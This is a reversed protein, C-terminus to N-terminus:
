PLPLRKDWNLKAAQYLQRFNLGVPKLLSDSDLSSNYSINEIILRLANENESLKEITRVLYISQKYAASAKLNEYSIFSQKLDGYSLFQSPSVSFMFNQCPQNHCSVRQAIGEDFWSPLRRQDTMQYFLAHVIEHRLIIKLEEFNKTKLWISKIPIRIRGDFLGAIWEPSNSVISSFNENPYLIVEIPITPNKFGYLEIYEQTVEELTDICFSAIEDYDIARHTINFRGSKITNQILAEKAKSAMEKEIAEFEKKQNEELNDKIHDIYQIAEQFMSLSELTDIYIRDMSYDTANQEALWEIELKTLFLKNKKHYCYALGKSSEISRKIDKSKNFFSIAENCLGLKLKTWGNSTYLSPLQETLWTKYNTNFPQNLHSLALNLAKEYDGTSYSLMVENLAKQEKSTIKSTSFVQSPELTVKAPVIIPKIPKKKEPKDPSSKYVGFYLSIGALLLLTFEFLRKM